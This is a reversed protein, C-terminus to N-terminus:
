KVTVKRLENKTLKREYKQSVKRLTSFSVNEKM